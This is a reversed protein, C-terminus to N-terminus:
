NNISHRVMPTEDTIKRFVYGNDLGYNIINEVAGLTKQNGSFDHM